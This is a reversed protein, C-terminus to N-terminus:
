VDGPQGRVRGGRDRKSDTGVKGASKRAHHVGCVPLPPTAAARRWLRPSLPETACRWALRGAARHPSQRVLSRGLLLRDWSTRRTRDKRDIQDCREGTGGHIAGSCSARSHSDGRLGGRQPGLAAGRRGGQVAGDQLGRRAVEPSAIAETARLGPREVARPEHAVHERAVPHRQRPRRTLLRGSAM